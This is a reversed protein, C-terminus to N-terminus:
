SRWNKTLYQEDGAVDGGGHDDQMSATEMLSSNATPVAQPEAGFGFLGRGWFDLGVGFGLVFLYRFWDHPGGWSGALRFVSAAIAPLPGWFADYFYM